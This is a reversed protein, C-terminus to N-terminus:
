DPSQVMDFCDEEAITQFSISVTAFITNSNMFFMRSQYGTGRLRRLRAQGWTRSRLNPSRM